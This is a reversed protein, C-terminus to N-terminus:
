HLGDSAANLTIHLQGKQLKKVHRQSFVTILILQLIPYNVQALGSAAHLLNSIQAQIDNVSMSFICVPSSCLSKHATNSKQWM